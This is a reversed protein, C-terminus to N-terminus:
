IRFNLVKFLKEKGGFVLMGFNRGNTKDKGSEMKFYTKM